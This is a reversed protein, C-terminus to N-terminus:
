LCDVDPNAKLPYCSKVREASSGQIYCERNAMALHAPVPRGENFCKEKYLYKLLEMIELAAVMSNSSCIAPVIRGVM